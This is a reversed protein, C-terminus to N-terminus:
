ILNLLRLIVIVVCIAVILGFIGYSRM